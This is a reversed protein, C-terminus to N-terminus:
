QKMARGSLGPASYSLNTGKPTTYLHFELVEGGVPAFNTYVCNGEHRYTGTFFEQSAILEGNLSASFFGEFNGKGDFTQNGAEAYPLM